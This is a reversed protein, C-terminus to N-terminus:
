HDITIKQDYLTNFSDGERNYVIGGVHVKQGPRYIARDTYLRAETSRTINNQSYDIINLYSIGESYKDDKTYPFFKGRYRGSNGSIIVEGRDNATYTATLKRKKGDYKYEDVKAGPVPHGTKADVVTLRNNSSPVPLSVLRLNSVYVPWYDAKTNKDTTLRALYVGKQKFTVTISDTITDYENKRDLAKTVTFAAGSVKKRLHSYDMYQLDQASPPMPLHYFTIQAKQVNLAQLKITLSQGEYVQRKNAMATCEPRTLGYAINRLTYSRSSSAYKKAGLRALELCEKRNKPINRLWQCAYIYAEVACTSGDYQEILQRAVKYSSSDTQGEHTIFLAGERELSDMTALVVANGNGAARYHEIFRHSLNRRMAAVSDADTSSYNVNAIGLVAERCVFALLDHGFYRSDNKIVTAPIFESTKHGEFINLDATAAAYCALAMDGEAPDDYRQRDAHLRALALNMMAKVVPREERKAMSDFRALYVDGSDPSITGNLQLTVLAAKLMQGTNNEASAKAYIAQSHQLATKPLDKEISKDFTKWMTAYSQGYATGCALAFALTLAMNKM